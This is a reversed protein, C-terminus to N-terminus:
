RGDTVLPDLPALETDSSETYLDDEIVDDSYTEDCATKGTEDDEIDQEGEEVITEPTPPVCWKINLTEAGTLASRRSRRPTISAIHDPIMHWTDMPFKHVEGIFPFQTSPSRPISMTLANAHTWCTTTALFLPLGVEIPEITIENIFETGCKTYNVLKALCSERSRIAVM